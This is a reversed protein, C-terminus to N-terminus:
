DTVCIQPIKMEFIQLCPKFFTVFRFYISFETRSVSDSFVNKQNKWYNRTLERIIELFKWSLRSLKHGCVTVHVWIITRFLVFVFLIASSVQARCRLSRWINLHSYNVRLEIELNIAISCHAKLLMYNRISLTGDHRINFIRSKSRIPSYAVPEISWQFGASFWCYVSIKGFLWSINLKVWM